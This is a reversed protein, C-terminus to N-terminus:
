SEKVKIHKAIRKALSSDSGRKKLEELLDQLAEEV